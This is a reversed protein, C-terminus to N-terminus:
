TTRRRRRRRPAHVRGVREARHDADPRHRAIAASALLNAAVLHKLATVFGASPGCGSTGCGTGAATAPPSTSRTSRRTAACGRTASPSRAPTRRRLAAADGPEPLRGDLRPRRLAAPRPDAHHGAAPDRGDGRRRVVLRLPRPRPPDPPQAPRLAPVPTGLEKVLQLDERWHRYHGCEELLDRRLRGGNPDVVVPNSCEIGTAFAFDWGSARRPPRQGQAAPGGRDLPPM